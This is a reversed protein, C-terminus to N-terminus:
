GFTALLPERAGGNAERMRYIYDWPAVRMLSLKLVKLAIVFVMKTLNQNDLQPNRNPQQKAKCACLKAFAFDPAKMCPTRSARVFRAYRFVEGFCLLTRLLAQM